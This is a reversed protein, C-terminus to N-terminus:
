RRYWKHNWAERLICTFGLAFHAQLSVLNREQTVTEVAVAGDSDAGRLAATMLARGIGKRRYMEDVALMEMRAVGEDGPPSVLQYGVVVGHIEAAYVSRKPDRVGDSIWGAYLADCRERPFCPDHYFRSDRHSRAGLAALAPIDDLGAHRISVAPEEDQIGGLDHRLTLRMDVQRYGNADAVRRTVADNEDALFYLCEVGRAECWEDVSAAAADDLTSRRVRAVQFGFFRSDWDLLECPEDLCM